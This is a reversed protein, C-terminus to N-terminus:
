LFAFQPTYITNFERNEGSNMILVYVFSQAFNLCAFILVMKSFLVILIKFINHTWTNKTSHVSVSSRLNRKLCQVTYICQMSLM